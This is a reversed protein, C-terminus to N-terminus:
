VMVFVRLVIGAYVEQGYFLMMKERGWQFGCNKQAVTLSPIYIRQSVFQSVSDQISSNDSKSCIRSLPIGM